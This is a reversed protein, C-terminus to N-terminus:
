RTILEARSRPEHASELLEAATQEHDTRAPPMRGAFRRVQEALETQGQSLLIDSTARWWREVEKRTELLRSKGREAPVNGNLLEAAVAEARARIHTSDGRLSARYIGDTKHTRSEGRVARATANAAIGQDRLHRAFERRWERLTAKRVNLRIGRESVAKVVLHVHPHREDTHLVLTYRHKRAFEERAFNRVAALVGQPPTGPPMSFMLKHVLKPAARGRTKAFESERRHTELDLDWDELLEEGVGKGQMRSGDDAELELDGRRAIYDIHKQISGANNSDKPLVKVVVEPTRGVTRAIQEIQWPQLGFSRGPGGRGYSVIDLFAPGDRVDLVRKPM